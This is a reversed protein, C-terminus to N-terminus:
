FAFTRVWEFRTDAPVWRFHQKKREPQEWDMCVMFWGRDQSFGVRDAYRIVQVTRDRMRAVTITM